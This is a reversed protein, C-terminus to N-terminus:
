DSRITGGGDKINQQVRKNLNEFHNSKLERGDFTRVQSKQSQIEGLRGYDVTGNNTTEEGPAFRIGSNGSSTRKLRDTEVPANPNNDSDDDVMRPTVLVKTQSPKIVKGPKEKDQTNSNHKTDPKPSSDNEKHDTEETDNSQRHAGSGTAFQPQLHDSFTDKAKGVNRQNDGIGRTYESANGRSSTNNTPTSIGDPLRKGLDNKRGFDKGASGPSQRSKGVDLKPNSIIPQKQKISLSDSDSTKDPKQRIIKPETEQKNKGAFCIRNIKKRNLSFRGKKQKCQEKSSGSVKNNVCCFGNKAKCARSVHQQNFSFKGKKKKCKKQTVKSIKGKSCCYGAKKRDTPNQQQKQKQAARPITTGEKSVGSTGSSISDATVVHSFFLVISVILSLFLQHFSFFM